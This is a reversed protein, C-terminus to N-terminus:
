ADLLEEIKAILEEQSFPKTIYDDAGSAKGMIRDETRAKFTLMITPIQKLRVDFKLDRCVKYGDMGPLMIDLIILDPKWERALQLGKKGEHATMCEYNEQELIIQLSEVFDFEDDIILIKKKIDDCPLAKTM